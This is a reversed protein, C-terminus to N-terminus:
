KELVYRQRQRPVYWEWLNYTIGIVTPKVNEFRNDLAVLAEPAYLFTYPLDRALLEHIRQYARRRKAVDFTGRGEELLRDVERNRYGVFNYEHEGTKSSHWIDYQDPDIDLSWGLIVADFKRKNVFEAIFAPWAVVRVEVKMGIEKLMWQIATACQERMRNGQNTVITFKFPKGERNLLAGGKTARVWGAEALLRLARQPDFPLPKVKKNYAWSEPLFPGTTVVGHGRLLGKVLAERDIALTIAERVRRDRFLDRNLNYGLYTYGYSPYSFRRFKKLFKDTAARTEYLDPTLGVEDINGAQLELFQVPQDPIVKIVLGGLGPRGEYYGPNATLTIKENTKWEKFMFPGTGVPARNFPATNIDRGKLLHAPLMGMGWSILAPAYPERYSVRVLGPNLVEVNKVREFMSRYPTKTNPDMMVDYTYKVDAATFPKGDHWKVGRRIIFDIVLGDEKIEYREALDGVVSLDPAYKVLGNFVRGAIDGSASDALLVPNLMMADGISASVLYDGRDAAPVPSCFAPASVLVSVFLITKVALYM